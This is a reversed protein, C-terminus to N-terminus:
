EDTIILCENTPQETSETCPKKSRTSAPLIYEGKKAAAVDKWFETIAPTATSNFWITDRKVAIENYSMLEWQITEVIHENEKLDRPIEATQMLYTYHPEGYYYRRSYGEEESYAEILWITGEILAAPGEPGQLKDKYMSRFQAEVYDCHDIDTVECQIQMQIYYDNPINDTLERSVPCKFEVLRGSTECIGDPSAALTPNTVHTIRGVEIVNTNHKMEYLRKIVPEFRIGWDFASMNLSEVALQQNFEVLTRAAKKLVLQGRTRGKKLITSFESATLVTNAHEYWEKTRQAIQKRSIVEAIKKSIDVSKMNDTTNYQTELRHLHCRKWWEIIEVAINYEEDDDCCEDAADLFEEYHVELTCRDKPIDLLDEFNVMWKYKDDQLFEM